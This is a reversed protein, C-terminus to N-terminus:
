PSDLVRLGGDTREAEPISRSITMRGDIRLIQMSVHRAEGNGQDIQQSLWTKAIASPHLPREAFFAISLALAM